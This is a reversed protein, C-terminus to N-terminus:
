EAIRVFVTRGEDERVQHIADLWRHMDDKTIKIALGLPELRVTVFEEFAVVTGVMAPEPEGLQNLVKM